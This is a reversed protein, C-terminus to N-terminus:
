EDEEDEQDYEPITECEPFFDCYECNEDPARRCRFCWLM